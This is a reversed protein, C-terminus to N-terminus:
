HLHHCPGRNTYYQALQDTLHNGAVCLNLSSEYKMEEVILHFSPLLCSLM